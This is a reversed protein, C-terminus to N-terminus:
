VGEVACVESKASLPIAALIRTGQGCKSEISLTGNVLNVREQMSILGLGRNRKAEDLDFGVGPDSVVLQVEDAIGFVEVTFKTTGSYKAANHLAEQAIRFLCLSIERPLQKPVNRSSFEVRVNHKRSFEVCLGKIAAVVGLYDLKSSHLHHSLLQVDSAIESCRTQVERLAEKEESPAGHYRRAVQEIEMSLLAMRQCIDDHLERAIRSREKEQAEILQGSVKELAERALKQDTIDVASGIFGAFSGDGNTRPTAVDFMWRYAGDHRRLRYEKSYPAQESLARVNAKSVRQRDDPHVYTTWADGFGAALDRGTFAVRRENLYTVSGHEDCMWILAPTSDAMVRFREESERLIAEAQRKRSRQWLLAVILVSQALLVAIVPILYKSYREWVSPPKYLVVTGPPLLSEPIQWRRLQRWDVRLQVDSNHVVPISDPSSGSLVRAALEGALIADRKPDYYAGGIGGHDLGLSLFVSYTPLHQAVAALVDYVGIAPQNSDQPFLQFLAVTDPPLAAVKDLLLGSPPGVIDIETLQRRQLESHVAELWDKETQSEGSIVAVVKTGPNLRLALGITEPIGSGSVVGTVGPWMKQYGLPSSISMFVIPVGPFLRSRYQLAFRLAPESVAVVLDLKESGISQRLTDALSDQYPKEEFRTGELDTVSFNVAWPVHVRLSAEMENISARGRGTVLVLVNKANPQAASTRDALLWFLTSSVWLLVAAFKRCRFVHCGKQRHEFRERSKLM